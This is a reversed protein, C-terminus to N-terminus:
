VTAQVAKQVLLRNKTVYDRSAASLVSQNSVAVTACFMLLFVCLLINYILKGSV